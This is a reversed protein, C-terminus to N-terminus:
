LMRKSLNLIEDVIEERPNLLEKDLLVRFKTEISGDRSIRDNVKYFLDRREFNQKQMEPTFTEDM